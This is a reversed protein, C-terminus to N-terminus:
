REQPYQLKLQVRYHLNQDDARTELLEITDVLPDNELMQMVEKAQASNKSRFGLKLSPQACAGDKVAAPDILFQELVLGSQLLRQNFDVIENEFFKCESITRVPKKVAPLDTEKWTMTFNADAAKRIKNWQDNIRILRTGAGGAAWFTWGAKQRYSITHVLLDGYKDRALWVDDQQIFSENAKNDWVSTETEKAKVWGESCGYIHFQGQREYAPGYALVDALNKESYNKSIRVSNERWHYYMQPDNNELQKAKSIFQGTDMRLAYNYAQDAVLANITFHSYDKADAHKELLLKYEQASSLSYTDILNPCGRRMPNEDVPVVAEFGKPPAPNFCSSMFSCMAILLYNNIQACSM